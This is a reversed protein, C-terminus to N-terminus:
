RVRNEYISTFDSEISNFEATVEREFAQQNMLVQEKYLRIKEKLLFNDEELNSIKRTLKSSPNEKMKLVSILKENSEVRLSAKQIFSNVTIIAPSVIEKEKVVVAKKASKVTSEILMRREMEQDFPDDSKTMKSKCSFFSIMVLLITFVSLSIRVM